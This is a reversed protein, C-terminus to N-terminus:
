TSETFNNPIQPPVMNFYVSGHFNAGSFMQLTSTPQCHVNSVMSASHTVSHPSIQASQASTPVLTASHNPISLTPVQVEENPFTIQYPKNTSQGQLVNSMAKQTRMSATSYNKVSEVNKHGSLQIISVPDVRADMLQEVMTKRVSHNTLHGSLKAHQAMKKMIKGLSDVGLASKKYWNGTKDWKTNVALYFPSDDTMMGEPRHDKFKKYVAVPCRSNNENQFLKPAFPRLHSSNGTRTKTERERFEVYEVGEDDTKLKM